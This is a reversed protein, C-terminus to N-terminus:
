KVGIVFFLIVTGTASGSGDGATVAIATKGFGFVMDKAKSTAAPALSAITGTKSKGILIVGGTLQIKWPINTLTAPGINKITATIGFGGKITIAIPSVITFPTNKTTEINGANDVSYYYVTHAMVTDVIIPATYTTWNGSDVKYMTYAVGSGNDIATLTVTVPPLYNGGSMTGNLTCTTYPPETDPASGFLQFNLDHSLGDPALTKIPTWTSYGWLAGLFMAEHLQIGGYSQNHRVWCAQPPYAGVGQVTIWYKTNAAFTIPVPLTATYNYVIYERGTDPRTYNYWFTHPISANDITQNYIQTGPENGTGDDTWFIINWPWGYDKFGQALECQFYGGQWFVGTVTTNTTFQFDDAPTADGDPRLVSVIIGGLAGHYLINNDWVLTDRTHNVQKVPISSINTNALVTVSSFVMLVTLLLVAAERKINKRKM